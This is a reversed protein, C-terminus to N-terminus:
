SQTTAWIASNTSASTEPVLAALRPPELGRRPVVNCDRLVDDFGAFGRSDLVLPAKKNIKGGFGAVRASHNLNLLSFRLHGIRLRRRPCESGAFNGVDGVGPAPQKQRHHDVEEAALHHAPCQRLVHGAIQEDNCQPHSPELAPEFFVQQGILGPLGARLGDM